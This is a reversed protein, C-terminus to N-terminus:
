EESWENLVEGDIFIEIRYNLAFYPLKSIHDFFISLIEKKTHRHYPKLGHM